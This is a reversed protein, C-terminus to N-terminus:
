LGQFKNQNFVDLLSRSYFNIINDHTINRIGTCTELWIPLNFDRRYRLYNKIVNFALECPNLEPSYKPLFRLYINQQDLLSSLAVMTDLHWHVPANDMILFDGPVLFGEKIASAVFILVDFGSNNEFNFHVFKDKGEILTILLMITFGKSHLSQDPVWKRTNVMSLVKKKKLLDREVVHAEDM